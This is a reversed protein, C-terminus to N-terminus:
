SRAMGRVARWTTPVGIKCYATALELIPQHRFFLALVGVGRKGKMGKGEWLGYSDERVDRLM